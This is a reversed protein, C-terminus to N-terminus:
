GTPWTAAGFLCYGALGVALWPTAGTVLVGAAYAGVALTETASRAHRDGYRTVYLGALMSGFGFSATLWGLGGDGNRVRRRGRQGGPAFAFLAGTAAVTFSTAMALRMAPRRWIYSVGQRFQVWFPEREISEAPRLRMPAMCALGAAFGAITVAFAPGPGWLWLTLGALAPGFARGATFSLSVFRVASILDEATGALATLAQTPAWQFGSAVGVVVQLGIMLWPTLADAGYLM